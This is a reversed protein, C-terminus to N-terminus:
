ISPVPEGQYWQGHVVMLFVLTRNRYAKSGQYTPHKWPKDKEKLIQSGKGLAKFKRCYVRNPCQCHTARMKIVDSSPRDGYWWYVKSSKVKWTCSYCENMEDNMWQIITRLCQVSLFFLFSSVDSCQPPWPLYVFSLCLLSITINYDYCPLTNFGVLASWTGM